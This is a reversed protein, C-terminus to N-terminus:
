SQEDDFYHLAERECARDKKECTKWSKAKGHRMASKLPKKTKCYKSYSPVVEVALGTSNLIVHQIFPVWQTSVGLRPMELGTEIKKLSVLSALVGFRSPFQLTVGTSFIPGGHPLILRITNLAHFGVAPLAWLLNWGDLGTVDFTNITFILNGIEGHLQRSTNQLSLLTSMPMPGYFTNAWRDPLWVKFNGQPRMGPGFTHLSPSYSIM